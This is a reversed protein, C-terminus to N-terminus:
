TVCKLGHEGYSKITKDAAIEWFSVQSVFKLSTPDCLIRKAESCIKSPEMLSWLLYHTDVLYNM